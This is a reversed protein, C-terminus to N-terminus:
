PAAHHPIQRAEGGGGDEPPHGKDLDGGGQQGLHVAAHAALHRHVQLVALVQGPGEVLGPQHEHVRVRQVGQGQGHEHVAHRLHDLVAADPVGAEELEESGAGGAGLEHRVNFVNQIGATIDLSFYDRLVLQVGSQPHDQVEAVGQAVGVLQRPVIGFPAVTLRYRRSHTGGGLQPRGQADGRRLHRLPDPVGARGQAQGGGDGAGYLVVGGGDAQVLLARPRVDGQDQQVFDAM